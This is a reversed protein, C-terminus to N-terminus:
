YYNVFYIETMDEKFFLIRVGTSPPPPTYALLTHARVPPLPELILFDSNVYNISSGNVSKDCLYLSVFGINKNLTPKNWMIPPSEEVELLYM